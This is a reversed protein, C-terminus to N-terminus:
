CTNDGQQDEKHLEFRARSSDLGYCFEDRIQADITPCQELIDWINLHSAERETKTENLM